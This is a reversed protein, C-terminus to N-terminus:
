KSPTKYNLVATAKVEMDDVTNQEIGRGEKFADKICQFKERWQTLSCLIPIWEALTKGELKIPLTPEAFVVDKSKTVFLQQSSLQLKDTGCHNKNCYMAM